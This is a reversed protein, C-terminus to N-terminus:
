TAPIRTVSSNAHDRIITRLRQLGETLDEVSVAGLCIRIGSQASARDVVTTTPATLRPMVVGFFIEHPL